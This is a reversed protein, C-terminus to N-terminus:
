CKQNIIISYIKSNNKYNLNCISYNTNIFPNYAPTGVINIQYTETGYQNTFKKEITYIIPENEKIGNITFAFTMNFSNVLPQSSSLLDSTSNLPYFSQIYNPDSISQSRIGINVYGFYISGFTIALIAVFSAIVIFELATQLKKMISSFM